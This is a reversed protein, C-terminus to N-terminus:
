ELSRALHLEALLADIGAIVQQMGDEFGSALVHEMGVTSAFFSTVVMRTKDGEAAIAIEMRTVDNGDNPMGDEDVDADEIVLWRPADVEVINWDGPVKDGEPSAMVYTVKGGPTLDHHQVTTPFDPPGWWRELLRPNAWLQWVSDVPADFEATVAMTRANPNKDVRLVTM